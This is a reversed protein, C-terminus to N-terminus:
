YRWKNPSYLQKFRPKVFGELKQQPHELKCNPNEVMFKYRATKYSFRKQIEEIGHLKGNTIWQNEIFQGIQAFKENILDIAEQDFQNNLYRYSDLELYDLVLNYYENLDTTPQLRNVNKIAQHFEEIQQDAVTKYYVDYIPDSWLIAMPNLGYGKLKCIQELDTYEFGTIAMYNEENVEADFLVRMTEYFGFLMTDVVTSTGDESWMTFLMDSVGAQRSGDVAAITADLMTSDYVLNMSTHVAGAMSINNNFKRHTTLIRNIADADKTWYNWYVLEVCEDISEVEAKFNTSYLGDGDTNSYISFLMDSWMKINEVQYKKCIEIVKEFHDLFMKKQDIKRSNFYNFGLDFAEDMGINISKTGFLEVMRGILQDLFDYVAPRLPDIVLDTGKVPNSVDWKLFHELHGLTQFAPIIQYDFKNAFEIIEKIEHDHLRGRLYGYQPYDELKILDEIYLTMYNFGMCASKVILEKITEVNYVKGRSMDVMIGRKSISNETTTLDYNCGLTLGDCVREYKITNDIKESKDAKIYQYNGLNINYEELLPILENM